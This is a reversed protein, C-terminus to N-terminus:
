QTVEAALGALMKAINPIPQENVDLGYFGAEAKIDTYSLKVSQEDQFVHVKLPLMIGMKPNKQMLPTGGKPNGFIFVTSPMLSLGAKEAGAAHDVKAFLNLPRKEIALAVRSVTEAFDYPSIVTQIAPKAIEHTKDAQLVDSRQDNASGCSVLIITLAALIKSPLKM